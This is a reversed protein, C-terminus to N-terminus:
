RLPECRPSPAIAERVLISVSSGIVFSLSLVLYPWYPTIGWIGLLGIALLLMLLEVFRPPNYQSSLILTNLWFHWIRMLISSTIAFVGRPQGTGNTQAVKEQNEESTAEIIFVRKFAKEVKYGSDISEL